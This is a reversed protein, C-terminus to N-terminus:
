LDLKENIESQYREVRLEEVDKVKVPGSLAASEYFSLPIAMDKYAEWGDVEPPRGEMISEYFDYLEIAFTNTAGRPFLRETEKSGLNVMMRRKVTEISYWEVHDEKQIQLEDRTVAGLSGYITRINMRKAPAVKTWLWQAYVGNEYRIIAMTMDDVTVKLGERIPEFTENVAYVESAEVGLQYRDLDALHVGGDFVWSGGAAMKDERWGWHHPSWGVAAWVIMRPKGILGHKIAWWIARNEPSRRYNEAVALVRGHKEANEIIVRAARMTIGLPKEIIVHLGNRICASAVQHHSDHPLCIDVAELSENKLVDELDTYVKPRYGQFVEIKKAKTEAREKSIDCVAKLDFVNLGRDHLDKYGNLHSEAIGGCGVLAIKLREMEVGM